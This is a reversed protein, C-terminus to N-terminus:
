LDLDKDWMPSPVPKPGVKMEFAVRTRQSIDRLGAGVVYPEYDIVVGSRLWVLSGHGGEGSIKGQEKMWDAAVLLEDPRIKFVLENLDWVNATREWEAVVAASLRSQGSWDFEIFIIARDAELIREFESRTSVSTMLGKEPYRRPLRQIM